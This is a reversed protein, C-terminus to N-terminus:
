ERKYDGINVIKKLEYTSSCYEMYFPVPMSIERSNNMCIGVYINSIISGIMASMYTTQKMSCITADAESDDFLCRKSYISFNQYNCKFSFVQLTDISLRGDIIWPNYGKKSSLNYISNAISKRAAMSDLGLIYVDAIPCTDVPFMMGMPYVNSADTFRRIENAVSDVKLLGVSTSPYFQGSMNAREVVDGDYLQISQPNFRSMIFSAFSGIGGVGVFCVNMRKAANYWLTGSFRSNSEKVENIDEVSSNLVEDPSVIREELNEM